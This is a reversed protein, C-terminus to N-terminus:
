CYWAALNIQFGRATLEPVVSFLAMNFDGSMISPRFEALYRALVDWFRKYALAGNSVDKKATMHNLHVNIITLEDVSKAEDGGGRTRFYRMKLSAIMVRTM